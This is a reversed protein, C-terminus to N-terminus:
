PLAPGRRVRALLPLAVAAGVWAIALVPDVSTVVPEVAERAADVVSGEWGARPPTAPASGYLLDAGTLAETFRLWLLGAAALGARRWVTGGLWAAALVFLPALGIAGLLPALAGASWLRGARPLLLPVPLLAATLVLATGEQGGEPSALWGCVALAAAIWGIRPLLAVAGAAVLAVTGVAFSPDPGLGIGLTVLIAAAAGSAVRGVIADRWGERTAHEEEGPVVIPPPRRSRRLVRTLRTRPRVATLGFREIVEPEVLGGEDPLEQETDVLVERLEALTPRYGPDPDLAADVVECLAAPLDRRRRRLPPLPAGVQRATAAPSAGRVPNSGTWAEYLTLALSYVDGEPGVAGGEAQEPAMYALTGVIDGTATLADGTALRAIGFDTLKAFGAGAAPEALVMVNGPKVDRHVVGRAHAHELAECLAAGIKAVDRDSVAGERTLDALTAGEVLESVLYAAHEDHGLEYLAVIGPHNLRAAAVAERQIRAEDGADGGFPVVKVAVDRELREDHARWVVGFGGAGLREGLRYRGLVVRGSPPGGLRETRADDLRETHADGAIRRTTQSRSM